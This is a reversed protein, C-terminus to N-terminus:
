LQVGVVYNAAYADGNKAAALTLKGGNDQFIGDRANRTDRAGRTSYPAQKYVEDSFADDFFWQSTFEYGRAANLDTRVKFHIHVARGSYWGPYITTFHVQGNADTVQYGRLFKKGKTSFGRDTVDSYRGAADCHWIDVAANPLAVCSGGSVKAVQITLSLPAGSVISGDSPDSRIDARNLREDVFYPGETLAPTIVCSLSSPSVTTAAAANGAAATPNAVTTGGTNARTTCGAIATAFAAGGLLLARRRTQRPDTSVNLRDTM